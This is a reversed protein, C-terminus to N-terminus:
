NTRGQNKGNNLEAILSWIEQKLRTNESQLVDNRYQLYLIYGSLIASGIAICIISFM